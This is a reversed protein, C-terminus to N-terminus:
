YAGGLKGHDWRVTRTPRFRLGIRKAAQKDVLAVAEDTLEGEVDAPRGAALVTDFRPALDRTLMLAQRAPGGVNLRTVLRLVRPRDGSM